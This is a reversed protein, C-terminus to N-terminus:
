KGKRPSVITVTRSIDDINASKGESLSYVHTVNDTDVIAIKVIGKEALVTIDTDIIHITVIAESSQILTHLARIAVPNKSVIEYHVSGSKQQFVSNEKFLNLFAIEANKNMSITSLDSILITANGDDGTAISEGIYINASQSADMFKDADRTKHTVTGKLQDLVGHISLSPPRLTFPSVFNSTTEQPKSSSVTDSDDIPTYLKFTYIGIIFGISIYVCILFIRLVTRFDISLM